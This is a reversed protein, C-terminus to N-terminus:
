TKMDKVQSGSNGINASITVMDRITDNFKQDSSSDSDRGKPNGMNDMPIPIIKDPLARLAPINSHKFMTSQNSNTNNNNPGVDVLGHENGLPDTAERYLVVVGFLAVAAIVVGLVSTAFIGRHDQVVVGLKQGLEGLNGAKEERTTRYYEWEPDEDEGREEELAKWPDMSKQSATRQNDMLTAKVLKDIMKKSDLTNLSLRGKPPEPPEKPEKPIRPEKSVRLTKNTKEAAARRRARRTRRRTKREERKEERTPQRRPSRRGHGGGSLSEKAMGRKIPSSM